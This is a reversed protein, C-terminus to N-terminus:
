LSGIELNELIAELPEVTHCSDVLHRAVALDDFVDIGAAVWRRITRSTVRFREAREEFNIPETATMPPAPQCGEPQTLDFGAVGARFGAILPHETM